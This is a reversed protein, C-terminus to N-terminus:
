LSTNIVTAIAATRAAAHAAAVADATLKDDPHHKRCVAHGADTRHRGIRWCRHVECNHKRMTSTLVGLLGFDGLIGSWFLYLSGSANDLGLWHSLFHM